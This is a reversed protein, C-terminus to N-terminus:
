AILTQRMKKKGKNDEVRYGGGENGINREKALSCENIGGDM